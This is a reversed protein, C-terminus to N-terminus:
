IYKKYDLYKIMINSIFRLLFYIYIFKEKITNNRDIKM